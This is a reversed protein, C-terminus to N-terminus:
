LNYLLIIRQKTSKVDLNKNSSIRRLMPIVTTFYRSDRISHCPLTKFHRLSTCDLYFTIVKRHSELQAWSSRQTAITRSVMSCSQKTKTQECRPYMTAKKEFRRNIQEQILVTALYLNHIVFIAITIEIRLVKHEDRCQSIPLYKKIFSPNSLSTIYFFQSSHSVLSTTM